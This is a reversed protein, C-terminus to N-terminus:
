KHRVCDLTGGRTVDYIFLGKYSKISQRLADQEIKCNHTSSTPLAM